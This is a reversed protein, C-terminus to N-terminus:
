NMGGSLRQIGDRALELGPDFELAKRYDKLALGPQGQREYARARNSYALADEPDIALAADFDQIARAYEQALHYILGRNVYAKTHRPAIDLTATFDSLAKGFAQLVYHGQGRHFHAEALRPGSLVRSEILRTCAAVKEAPHAGRCRAQTDPLEPQAMITMASGAVCLFLFGSRIMSEFAM